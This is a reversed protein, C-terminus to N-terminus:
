NQTQKQQNRQRLKKDKKMREKSMQIDFLRDLDKASADNVQLEPITGVQMKDIRPDKRKKYYVKHYCAKCLGRSHHPKDKHICFNAKKLSNQFFYCTHCMFRARHKRHHHQCFGMMQLTQLSKMILENNFQNIEIKLEGNDGYYSQLIEQKQAGVSEEYNCKKIRNNTKQM